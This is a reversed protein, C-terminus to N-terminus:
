ELNAGPRLLGRNENRQPSVNNIMVHNIITVQLFRHPNTKSLEQSQNQIQTPQFALSGCNLPQVQREETYNLPHLSSALVSDLIRLGLSMM